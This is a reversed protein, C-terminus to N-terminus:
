LYFDLDGLPLANLACVILIKYIIKTKKIFKLSPM